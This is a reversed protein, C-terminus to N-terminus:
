KDTGDPEVRANVMAAVARVLADGPKNQADRAIETVTMRPSGKTEGLNAARKAQLRWAHCFKRKQQNAWEEIIAAAELAIFATDEAQTDTLGRADILLEADRDSIQV